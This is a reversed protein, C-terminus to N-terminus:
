WSKLKSLSMDTSDSIGDLGRMRLQGRRGKGETKGLMLWFTQEPKEMLNTKTFFSSQSWGLLKTQICACSHSQQIM